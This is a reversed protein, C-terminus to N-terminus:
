SKLCLEIVKFITFPLSIPWAFGGFISLGLLVGLDVEIDVGIRAAAFRMERALLDNFDTNTCFPIAIVAFVSLAWMGSAMFYFHVFDLFSGM